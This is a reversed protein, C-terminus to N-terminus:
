KLKGRLFDDYGKLDLLGHGSLNFMIVKKKGEERAQVAEDIAAKIAHASEPAPVIGECRAFDVAAQFVENQGYARAETIKEENLFSLIPANAHYRLGGAHIPPPVFDSGLTQMKLLPTKKATDGFDYGYKGKTMKPCSTAEVAIAKLNPKARSIKDILFPIAFGAFNSGGGVCGILVDPYEQAKEMQKKAEQGVITQHLLVHNLVSGLAYKTNPSQAAIELAESIAIGLSGPTEPNKALVERGFATKESPSANVEAGFIQMLFKRYPKQDFSVRVMFCICKLGFFNCAVSLASGWQGAGTETTLTKVGEQKNYYAQAVATNIKHSGTLTAGENKFYIHAPTKLFKELRVARMLPTPRYMKYIERVAFPIEIKEELSMEQRILEKPFIAELDKPKIPKMTAPHLPPDPLKGLYKKLYYNINVFHTPIENESLTIKIQM